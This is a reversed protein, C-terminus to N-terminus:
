ELEKLENILERQVELIKLRVSKPLLRTRDRFLLFEGDTAGYRECILSRPAFRLVVNKNLIDLTYGISGSIGKYFTYEEQRSKPDGARHLNTAVYMLVSKSLDSLEPHNEIIELYRKITRANLRTGYVIKYLSVRENSIFHLLIDIIKSANM